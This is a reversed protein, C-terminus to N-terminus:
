LFLLVTGGAPESKDRKSPKSSTATSSPKAV